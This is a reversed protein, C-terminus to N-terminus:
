AALQCESQHSNQEANETLLLEIELSPFHDKKLIELAAIVRDTRFTQHPKFETKRGNEVDTTKCPIGCAVLIKAFEGNAVRRSSTAVDFGAQFKKFAICLDRRVRALDGDAKRMYKTVQKEHDINTELYLLFSKLDALSKLNKRPKKAYTEWAERVKNFEAVDSVPDTDFTLHSCSKGEFTFSVERPNFPRRKWDFEMSLYKAFSRFVFDTDLRVMDKLGIGSKYEVVSDPKRGLFQRITYANEQETSFEPNTKLGGKQLVIGNEGDGTKLTASGRTRWGIPQRVIHKVELPFETSGLLVRGKIFTAFLPGSTAKEIEQDNANSLFGDTTVSFVHVDPSFGNLVEGLVARTYSTIFAAFYPQTIESEPLKVMDDDRLDYVRKQRLGQATKGYTSNGVEKWFLNDFTGKAHEARKQITTQIFGRFVSGSRDTPILVARKIRINAGLQIALSIEPSACKSNGKRPFIIGNATRVPLVPFRVSEPFEFDVSFYALDLPDVDDFSDIRRCNKWDPIGIL